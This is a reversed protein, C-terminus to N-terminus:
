AIVDDDTMVWPQQESAPGGLSRADESLTGLDRTLLSARVAMSDGALRSSCCSSSVLGRTTHNLGSFLAHKAGISHSLSMIVRVPSERIRTDYSSM